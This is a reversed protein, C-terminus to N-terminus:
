PWTLHGKPGGWRVRLGEFSFLFIFPFFGSFGLFVLFHAEWNDTLVKKKPHADLIDNKSLKAWFARVGFVSYFKPNWCVKQFFRIRWSVAMKQVLFGFGSIGTINKKAQKRRKWCCFVCFTTAVGIKYHKLLGLFSFKWFKFKFWQFNFIGIKAGKRQFLSNKLFNGSLQVCFVCFSLRTHLFDSSVM